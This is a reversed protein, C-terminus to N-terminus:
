GGAQHAVRCARENVVRHIADLFIRSDRERRAGIAIRERRLERHQPAERLVNWHVRNRNATADCVRHQRLIPIREFAALQARRDFQAPM